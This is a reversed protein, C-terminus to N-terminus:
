KIILLKKTLSKTQFQLKYLYIGSSLEGSSISISYIGRTHFRNTLTKVREGLTNFLEILVSGDSPILYQIISISNFPNPFNQNLTLDNETEKNEEFYINTITEGLNGDKSVQQAVITFENITGGIIFGSRGDTTFKQSVIAPQGVLVGDIDWLKNGLTDYLQAITSDPLNPDNWYVFITRSLNSTLISNLSSQRNMLAISGNDFLISGDSRLVQFQAVQDVGNKRGSWGYYYYNGNNKIRLQTNVFLSDAIEVYPEQWLNNGISDKRQAVLKPIMGNWVRGSLVIGGEPDPVPYGLSVSYQNLIQGERGIRHVTLGTQVYYNGDSARIIWKSNGNGVAIGADGWERQGFSNIRNMWYSADINQWVIVCGGAGDPVLEQAGHNSETLNVRVGTQGWLFNGNSDVRQVRVRTIYNTGIVENDEYSIIVGGESDEVIEAQWQEPLEGLIQKKTGWPKYGYMDLRKVALKQPYFSEYNYTVYCGGASDSVIHPDWGTAIILNNNPDTSWQPLLYSSFLILFYFSQVLKKM